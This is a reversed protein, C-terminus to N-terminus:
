VIEGTSGGSRGPWCRVRSAPMVASVPTTALATTVPTPVAIPRCMM